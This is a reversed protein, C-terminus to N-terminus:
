ERRGGYRREAELEPRFAGSDRVGGRGPCLVRSHGPATPEPSADLAGQRWDATVDALRGRRPSSTRRVGQYTAVSEVFDRQEEETWGSKLCQTLYVLTDRNVALNEKAVAKMQERDMEGLSRPFALGEGKDADSPHLPLRHDPLQVELFAKVKRALRRCDIGHDSRLCPAELRLRACRLTESFCEQAALEAVDAGLPGKCVQHLIRLSAAPMQWQEPAPIIARFLCERLQSGGEFLQGPALAAVTSAIAPDSDVLEAWDFHRSDITLRNCRAYHDANILSPPSETSPSRPLRLSEKLSILDDGSNLEM